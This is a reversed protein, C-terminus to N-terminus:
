PLFFYDLDIKEGHMKATLKNFDIKNDVLFQYVPPVFSVLYYTWM